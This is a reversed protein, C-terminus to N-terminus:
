ADAKILYGKVDGALNALAEGKLAATVDAIVQAKVQDYIDQASPFADVFKALDVRVKTTTDSLTLVLENGELEAGALKIDERARLREVEEQLAATKAKEAELERKAEALQEEQAQIRQNITAPDFPDPLAVTGKVGAATVEFQVNGSNDPKVNVTGDAYELGKGIEEKHTVLITM